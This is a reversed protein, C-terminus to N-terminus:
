KEGSPLEIPTGAPIPQGFDPSDDTNWKFEQLRIDRDWGPETTKKSHYFIWDETGDPSTTFSAHGVGLVEETGEFVPGSKKWNEPKLPDMLTDPLTLQGLRYEVMWSERTSYILHVKENKRLVQPGENLDLPGGTEWPEEPSSIKVRNSSITHPNSMTAIYLHQRTKDTERNEEWGSWIAYRQGNMVMTTLDIAWKVSSSDAIDDGTYIMGKDEYPGFPDDSVSELVGSRQHIFPPGAVGAAYYIYWKGEIFHIEPAWINTQNWAGKEPRWVVEKEGLDTLKESKSVVIGGEGSGCYYYFGDKKFVWPDAGDAIPNAFVKGNVAPAKGEIVTADESESACANALWLMLLIPLFKM